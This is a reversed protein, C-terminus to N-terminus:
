RREFCRKRSMNPCSMCRGHLESPHVAPCAAEALEGEAIQEALLETIESFLPAGDDLM